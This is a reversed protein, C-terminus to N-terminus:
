NEADDGEERKVAAAMDATAQEFTDADGCRRYLVDGADSYGAVTWHERGTTPSTYIRSAHATM